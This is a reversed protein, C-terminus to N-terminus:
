IIAAMHGVLEEENAQLWSLGIDDNGERIEADVEDGEEDESEVEDEDAMLAAGEMEAEKEEREHSTGIRTDRIL